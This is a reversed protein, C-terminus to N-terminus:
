KIAIRDGPFILDPNAIFGKNKAMLTQWGGSLGFQQAISTLTDGPVILYDGNPNGSSRQVSDVSVRPPVSVQVPTSRHTTVTAGGGAGVSGCHPWAGMGQSHSVNEAVRIQEARSAQSPLGSGGNAHWTGPSFQLGGYYGNGTSAAWNGGSECAAVADWNVGPAAHVAGAAPWLSMALAVLGAVIFGITSGKAYRSLFTFM